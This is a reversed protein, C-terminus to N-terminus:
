LCANQIRKAKSVSQALFGFSFVRIIPAESILGGPCEQVSLPMVTM